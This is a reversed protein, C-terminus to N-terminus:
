IETVEYPKEGNERREHIKQNSSLVNISLSVRNNIKLALKRM